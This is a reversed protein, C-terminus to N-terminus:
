FYETLIVRTQDILRNFLHPSRLLPAPTTSTVLELLGIATSVGVQRSLDGLQNTRASRCLSTSVGTTREIWEAFGDMLTGRGTLLVADPQPQRHLVKEIAKQLLAWHREVHSRVEPKRCSTGELSWTVAQEMTVHLDKAITEALKLGGWPLFAVDRLLGEVFLGVDSTLGGVDILLVRQHTLREEAMSALAAPLTYTLRVVELGASEVAQVIARRSAIPIAVLHFDAMLRTASLGRPDRVGDFGNGSCGLREVLLPERDVGLAQHLASRELRKLDQARVTAPEDALPIGVRVHESTLFPPHASVWARSFEGHVATAELAQEITRSVMLPDGLWTDSLLPYPTLSSGLLEFSRSREHPLGVACAVKTAGLDLAVLPQITM